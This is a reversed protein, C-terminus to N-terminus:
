PNSQSILPVTKVYYLDSWYINTFKGQGVNIAAFIHCFLEQNTDTTTYDPHNDGKKITFANGNFRTLPTSHVTYTSPPFVLNLVINGSSDYGPTIEFSTSPSLPSDATAHYYPAKIASGSLAYLTVDENSTTVVQGSLNSISIQTGFPTNQYKKRFASNLSAENEKGWASNGNVIYGLFLSPGTDKTILSLNANGGYESVTIYIKEDDKYKINTDVFFIRPIGCGIVALLVFFVSATLLLKKNMKM